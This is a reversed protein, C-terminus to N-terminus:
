NTTDYDFIEYLAAAPEPSLIVEAVLLGRGMWVPIYGSSFVKQLYRMVKM